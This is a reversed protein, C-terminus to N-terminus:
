EELPCFNPEWCSWTVGARPLWCERQDRHVSAHMCVCVCVCMNCVCMYTMYMNYDICICM